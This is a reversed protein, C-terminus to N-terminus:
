AGNHWRDESIEGLAQGALEESAHEAIDCLTVIGVLRESARDLVLLRRIQRDGMLAAAETVQQDAFCTVPDRAMISVVATDAAAGQPARMLIDRDTVIGVLVKGAVVALAGVDFDRMQGIAAAVSAWPSIDIVPSSMINRIKVSGSM